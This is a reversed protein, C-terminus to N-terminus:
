FSSWSLRLDLVTVSLFFLHGPWARFSQYSNNFIAGLRIAEFSMIQIIIKFHELYNRLNKVDEYM